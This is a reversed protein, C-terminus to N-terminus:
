DEATFGSAKVIPGWSETDAKVRAAFEAVPMYEPESVFKALAEIVDPAETVKKLVQNLGSVIDPPTKAPLFFGSWAELTIDFGQERLTPINPAFKSRRTSTVGLIRLKGDQALQIVEGLPNFSAAVHGGILDQAAPAGGRYHVPTLKVGSANSLMIGAFHPTGGAATTAYNAKDPNEKCWELFAKVTMIEAPVMPGISIALMGRTVPTVPIFDKISDYSLTKFSHPYVTLPFDPTFLMVSGDPDSNKVFEVSLRAAAGTKNEVLVNPAYSGKLKEAFLRAIVDTGGGAPFGVIIRAQKNITEARAQSLLPGSALAAASAALMSRRTLM